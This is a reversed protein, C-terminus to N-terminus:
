NTLLSDSKKEDPNDVESGKTKIGKMMIKLLNAFPLEVLMTMLFGFFLGIVLLGMYIVFTDIPQYYVDFTRNYLFRIIVLLHVLYTCFSIRAIWTFIKANLILAFFSNKIGLSAPLITVIMGLIFLPKSLILYFSHAIQPWKSGTQLPRPIFTVLAMLGIGFWEVGIRLYKKEELLRKVRALV